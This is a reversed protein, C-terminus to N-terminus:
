FCAMGLILTGFLAADEMLPVVSAADDDADVEVLSVVTKGALLAPRGGRFRTAGGCCDEFLSSISKSSTGVGGLVLARLLSLSGSVSASVSLTRRLLRRVAGELLLLSTMTISSSSSQDDKKKIRRLRRKPVILLTFAPIVCLKNKVIM